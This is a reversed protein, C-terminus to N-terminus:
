KINKIEGLLEKEKDTIKKPLTLNLIVIMDGVIGGKKFGKGKIRLNDGVESLEPINIKIKGDFTDLIYENGLIFDVYSLSIKKILDNGQRQLDKHAVENIVVYLDGTVGNKLYDGGGKVIFTHGNDVGQPITIDVTDTKVQTGIGNCKKCPDVIIRGSGNCKGCIQQNVMKGMPTQFVQTVMGQGNCVDCTNEKGGSGSCGDCQVSHNFRLKKTTGRYIEELTLNLDIRIDRGKQQHQHRRFGGFGFDRMRSAIDFPDFGFGNGGMNSGGMDYQRKKDPDSLTTYADNIEKMREEAEKNDPNKDPHYQLALKKYAKKIEEESANKEVGLIQYLDKM